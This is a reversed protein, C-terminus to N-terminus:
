ESRATPLQHTTWENWGEQYIHLRTLGENHLRIASWYSKACSPSSCYLVIAEARELQPRLAPFRQDFEGEPLSLAGAIHGLQYDFSSRVDLFVTSERQWLAQTDDLRLLPVQLVPFTAAPFDAPLRGEDRAERRAALLWASYGSLALTILLIHVLNYLKM